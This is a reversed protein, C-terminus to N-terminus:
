TNNDHQPQGCGTATMSPYRSLHHRQWQWSANHIQSHSDAVAIAFQPQIGPGRKLICMSKLRMMSLYDYARYLLIFNSIWVWVEVAASNINPFQYTIEDWAKYHIANSIWVPIITLGHQYLPGLNSWWGPQTMKLTKHFTLNEDDLPITPKLTM